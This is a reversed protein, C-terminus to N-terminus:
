AWCTPLQFRKPRRHRQKLSLRISAQTLLPLVYWSPSPRGHLQRAGPRVGRVGSLRRLDAEMRHRRDALSVRVM